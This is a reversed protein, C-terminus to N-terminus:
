CCCWCCCCVWCCFACNVCNIVGANFLLADKPIDGALLVLAGLEGLRWCNSDEALVLERNATVLISLSDPYAFSTPMNQRKQRKQRERKAVFFVVKTGKVPSVVLQLSVYEELLLFFCLRGLSCGPANEKNKM